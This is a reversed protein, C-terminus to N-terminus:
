FAPVILPAPDAAQELKDDHLRGAQGARGRERLGAEALPTTPHTSDNERCRVTLRGAPRSLHLACAAM